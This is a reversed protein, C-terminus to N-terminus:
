LKIGLHELIIDQKAEMRELMQKQTEQSKGREKELEVIRKLRQRHAEKTPDVPVQFNRV